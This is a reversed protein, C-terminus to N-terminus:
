RKIYTQITSVANGTFTVAVTEQPLYYNWVETKVNCDIGTTIVDKDDPQRFRAVVLAKPAGIEIFEGNPTRYTRTTNREDGFSIPIISLQALALLTALRLM